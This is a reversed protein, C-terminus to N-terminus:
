KGCIAEVARRSASTLEDRTAGARARIAITHLMATGLIALAPPDAERAIEGRAQAACILTELRQDLRRVNEGLAARIEADAAAVAPATSISFCGRTAGEGGYYIAIARDYFEILAERLPRGEALVERTEAASMKWYRRLAKLYIARKDGFAAYLSPRNMGTAEVLDDLSTADYGARWFASMAQDLAIDPDYARPRGRRKSAALSPAGESKQVM